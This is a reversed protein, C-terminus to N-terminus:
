SIAQDVRILECLTPRGRVYSEISNLYFYGGLQRIYKVKFHDLNAIDCDSLLMQARCLEFRNMMKQFKGYYTDIKKQFSLEQDFVLMPTIGSFEKAKYDEMAVAKYKFRRPVRSLRMIRAGTEKSSVDGNDKVDYLPIRPLLDSESAEFLSELVVKDSELHDNDISFFGEQKETLEEDKKYKMRCSRGYNQPTFRREQVQVFKDSWNEKKVCSLMEEFTLAEIVNKERVRYIVGYHNCLEKFLKYCDLDKKIYNKYEKYAGSSPKFKVHLYWKLFPVEGEFWESGIYVTTKAPIYIDNFRYDAVRKKWTPNFYGKNSYNQYGSQDELVLSVMIKDSKWTIEICGDVSLLGEQEFYLGGSRWQSRKPTHGSQPIFFLDVREGMWTKWGKDKRKDDISYELEYKSEKAVDKVSIGKSPPMVTNLFADSKFPDNKGVYRWILGNEHLMKDWLSSLFVSPPTYTTVVINPTSTFKINAGYDAIAHLYGATNSFTGIFEDASVDIKIHSWNLDCIKKLSLKEKLSINGETIQVEISSPKISVVHLFGEKILTYGGSELRAPLKRYPEDSRVNTIGLFNLASMNRESFPLHVSMSANTCRGEFSLIDYIQFSMGVELGSVEVLHGSVYLKVM